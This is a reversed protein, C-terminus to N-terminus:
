CKYKYVNHVHVYVYGNVNDTPAAAVTDTTVTPATSALSVCSSHIM